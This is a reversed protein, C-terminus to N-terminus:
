PGRLPSRKSTRMANARRTGFKRVWDYPWQVRYLLAQLSACFTHAHAHAHAYRMRLFGQEACASLADEYTTCGPQGLLHFYCAWQLTRAPGFFAIGLYRVGPPSGPVGLSLLCFALAVCMSVGM